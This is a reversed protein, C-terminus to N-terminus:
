SLAQFVGEVTDIALVEMMEDRLLQFFGLGFVM